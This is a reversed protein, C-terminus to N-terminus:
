LFTLRNSFLMAFDFVAFPMYFYPSNSFLSRTARLMEERENESSPDARFSSKHIIDSFKSGFPGSVDLDLHFPFSYALFHFRKCVAGFSSFLEQNEMLGSADFIELFIDDPLELVSAM